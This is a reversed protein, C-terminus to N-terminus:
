LLAAGGRSGWATWAWFWSEEVMGLRAEEAEWGWEWGLLLALRCLSVGARGLDVVRAHAHASLGLVGVGSFCWCLCLSLAREAVWPRGTVTMREDACGRALWCGDESRGGGEGEDQLLWPSSRQM